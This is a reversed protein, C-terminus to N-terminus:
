PCVNASSPSRYKDLDFEGYDSQGPLFENWNVPVPLHLRPDPDEAGSQIRRFRTQNLPLVHLGFISSCSSKIKSTGTGPLWIM